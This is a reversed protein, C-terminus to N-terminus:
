SAWEDRAIPLLISIQMNLSFKETNFLKKINWINSLSHKLINKQGLRLENNSTSCHNAYFHLAKPMLKKIKLKGLKESPQELTTVFLNYRFIYMCVSTHVPGKGLLVYYWM